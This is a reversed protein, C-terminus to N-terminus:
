TLYAGLVAASNIGNHALVTPLLSAWRIRIWALLGGILGTTLISGVDVQLEWGTGLALGHALGFLLCTVPVEWGVAAGWMARRAQLAQSALVLLVGRFLLEEDLGPVIAQYLVTELDPGPEGSNGSLLGAVTLVAASGVAIAVVPVLWGTRPRVVGVARWSLGPLARVLLLLLALLLVKNQWNWALDGLWGIRPLHLVLTAGVYTVGILALRRPGGPALIQRGARHARSWVVPGLLVATVALHLLATLGAWALDAM